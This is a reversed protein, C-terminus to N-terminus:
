PLAAYLPVVVWMRPHEKVFVHGCYCRRRPGRSVVFGRCDEVRKMRVQGLLAFCGAEAKCEQQQRRRRRRKKSEKQTGREPLPSCYGDLKSKQNSRFVVMRTVYEVERRRRWLLLLV